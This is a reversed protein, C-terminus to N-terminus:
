VATAGVAVFVAQTILSILKLIMFLYTYTVGPRSIPM